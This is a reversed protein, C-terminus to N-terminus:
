ADVIVTVPGDNVLSVEMHAGFRGTQVEIGTVRLETLFTDFLKNGQEFGASEIFSPRRNKSADGYVTFNSIALVSRGYGGGEVPFDLISLNMKGAEDNFIRLNAVKSALKKVNAETDDRHVGVLLLLGPGCRGTTEGDISV